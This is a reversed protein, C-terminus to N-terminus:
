RNSLSKIFKLGWFVTNETPKILFVNNECHMSFRMKISCGLSFWVKKPMMIMLFKDLLKFLISFYM